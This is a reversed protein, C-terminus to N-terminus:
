RSHRPSTIWRAVAVVGFMVAAAAIGTGIAAFKNTFYSSSGEDTLLLWYWALLDRV